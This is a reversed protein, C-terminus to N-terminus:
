RITGYDKFLKEIDRSRCDHGLNGLFLRPMKKGLKEPIILLVFRCKYNESNM